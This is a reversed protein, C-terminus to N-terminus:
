FRPKSFPWLCRSNTPKTQQKTRIDSLIEYIRKASEEATVGKESGDKYATYRRDLERKFEASYSTTKKKRRIM